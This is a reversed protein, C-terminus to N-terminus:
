NRVKVQFHFDMGLAPNEDQRYLKWVYDLSLELYGYGVCVVSFSFRKLREGVGRDSMFVGLLESKQFHIHVVKDHFALSALTVKVDTGHGQTDSELSM